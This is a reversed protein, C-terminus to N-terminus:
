SSLDNHLLVETSVFNLPFWRSHVILRNRHLLGQYQESFITTTFWYSTRISSSKEVYHVVSKNVELQSSTAPESTYKNQLLVCDAEDTDTDVVGAGSAGEVSHLTCTHLAFQNRRPRSGTQNKRSIDALLKLAIFRSPERLNVTDAPWRRGCSYNRWNSTM